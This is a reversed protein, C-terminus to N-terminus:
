RILKESSIIKIRGQFGLNRGFGVL